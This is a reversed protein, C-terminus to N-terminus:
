QPKRGNHFHKSIKGLVQSRKKADPWNELPLIQHPLLLMEHQHIGKMLEEFSPITSPNAWSHIRMNPQEILNIEHSYGLTMLVSGVVAQLRKKDSLSRKIAAGVYEEATAAQAESFEKPSHDHLAQKVEPLNLIVTLLDRTTSAELNRRKVSIGKVAVPMGQNDVLITERGVYMLAPIKVGSVDIEELQGIEYNMETGHMILLQERTLFNVGVRVATDKTELGTYLQAIFNGKQGPRNSWVVDFGELEGVLTPVVQLDPRGEITFKQKLSAPSGNAGYALVPIREGILPLGQEHLYHDMHERGNPTDLLLELSNGSKMAEVYMVVNGDTCFSSGPREGPYLLPDSNLYASRFNDVPEPVTYEHTSTTHIEVSM